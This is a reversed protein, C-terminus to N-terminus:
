PGKDSPAERAPKERLAAAIGSAVGGLYAGVGAPISHAPIPPIPATNGMRSSYGKGFGDAFTKSFTAGKPIPM